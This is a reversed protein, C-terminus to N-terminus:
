TRWARLLAELLVALPWIIRLRKHRRIAVLFLSPPTAPPGGGGAVNGANLLPALPM